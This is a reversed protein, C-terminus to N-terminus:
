ESRYKKWKCGKKTITITSSLAFKKLFFENKKKKFECASHAKLYM